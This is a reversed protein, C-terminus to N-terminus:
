YPVPDRPGESSMERERVPAQFPDLTNAIVDDWCELLSEHTQKKEQWPCLLLTEPSKKGKWIGKKGKRLYSLVVSGSVEGVESQYSM